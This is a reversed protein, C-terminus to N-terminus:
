IRAEGFILGMVTATPELSTITTVSPAGAPADGGTRNLWVPRIGAAMAGRIDAAWSDGLMVADDARCDLRSLATAFIGPDPKSIGAEESVVLVDVYPALGCHALKDRQEDLLNNSVIGVRARARVGALLEAAGSITRRSALFGERYSAATRSSLGADPEIGAMQYLRRFREIRAVDPDLRGIMVDLHLAELLASHAREFDDAGMHEFAPHMARVGALAARSCYQHDFLTDDLDFLVARIM